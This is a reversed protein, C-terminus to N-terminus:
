EDLIRLRAPFESDPAPGGVPQLGGKPVELLVCFRELRDPFLNKRRPMDRGADEEDAVPRNGDAGHLHRVNEPIM